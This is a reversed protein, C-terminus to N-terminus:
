ELGRQRHEGLAVELALVTQCPLLKVPNAQPRFDDVDIEALVDLDVARSAGVGADVGERLDGREVAHARLGGVERPHEALVELLEGVGAEGAILVLRGQGGAAEAAYERLASLQAERELLRV